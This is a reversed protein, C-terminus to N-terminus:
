SCSLLDHPVLLVTLVWLMPCLGERPSQGWFTVELGMLTFTLLLIYFATAQSICICFTNRVSFNSLFIVILQGLFFTTCLLMKVSSATVTELLWLGPCQPFAGRHTYSSSERRAAPYGESWSILFISQIRIEFFFFHVELTLTVM